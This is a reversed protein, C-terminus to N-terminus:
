AGCIRYIKGRRNQGCNRRSLIRIRNNAPSCRGHTDTFMEEMDGNEYMAYAKRNRKHPRCVYKQIATGSIAAHGATQAICISQIKEKDLYETIDYTQYQVRHLYSTFGPAFLDNGVKKGNVHLNYIGIASVCIKASTIKNRLKIETRFVPCSSGTDFGVKIWHNKM